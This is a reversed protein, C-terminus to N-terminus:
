VLSGTLAKVKEKEAKRFALYDSRIIIGLIKGNELITLHGTM